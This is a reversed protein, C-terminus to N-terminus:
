IHIQAAGSDNGGTTPHPWSTWSPKGFSGVVVSDAEVAKEAEKGDPATM